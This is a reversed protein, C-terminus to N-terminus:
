FNKNWILFDEFISLICVFIMDNAYRTMWFQVKEWHHSKSVKSQKTINTYNPYKINLYKKSTFQTILDCTWKWRGLNATAEVTTHHMYPTRNPICKYLWIQCHKTPFNICIYLTSTNCNGDFLTRNPIFIGKFQLRKVNCSALIVPLLELGVLATSPQLCATLPSIPSAIYGQIKSM